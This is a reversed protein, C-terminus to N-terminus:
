PAILGKDYCIQDFECVINPDYILLSEDKHEYEVKSLFHKITNIRAVKKDNARVVYWPAYAFHTRAFMEDRALSYQDWLEQAKQDIPSLKWQKLPDKKREELRKKQEDKTIDLWYKTFIFGDHVLLHEFNPVEQMFKEYEENTCFGMVKEVGARNYWSRNFFAMEGGHPLYHIYRQFYLYKKDLETPKGLAVVRTERPSLHETFRKITGDKGAADRGEFITCVKLDKEIVTRQFKVLEVQLYYLEKKYEKKDM